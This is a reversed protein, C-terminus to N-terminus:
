SSFPLIESNTTAMKSGSSNTRMPKLPFILRLSIARIALIISIFPTSCNSFIVGCFLFCHSIKNQKEQYRNEAPGSYSLSRIEVINAFFVVFLLIDRTDADIAQATKDEGTKYSIIFRLIINNLIKDSLTGCELEQYSFSLIRM